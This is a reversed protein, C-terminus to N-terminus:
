RHHRFLRWWQKAHGCEGTDYCAMIQEAQDAELRGEDVARDVRRQFLTRLAAEVDEGAVGLEAGLEAAFEGRREVRREGREGRREERREERDETTADPSSEDGVQAFAGTTVLLLGAVLTAAITLGLAVRRRTPRPTTM